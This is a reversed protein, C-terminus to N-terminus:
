IGWYLRILWSNQWDSRPVGTYIIITLVGIARKFCIGLFVDKTLSIRPSWCAEVKWNRKQTQFVEWTARPCRSPLSFSALWLICLFNSDIIVEALVRAWMVPHPSLLGVFGLYPSVRSDISRGLIWGTYSAYQANWVQLHKAHLPMNRIARMTAM